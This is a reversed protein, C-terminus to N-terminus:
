SRAEWCRLFWSVCWRPVDDKRVEQAGGGADRPQYGAGEREDGSGGVQGQRQGTDSDRYGGDWGRRRPVEDRRARRAEQRLSGEVTPPDRAVHRREDCRVLIRCLLLRGQSTQNPCLTLTETRPLALPPFSAGLSEKLSEPVDKFGFHTTSDAPPPPHSPAAASASPAPPPSSPNLPNSATRPSSTSAFSRSSRVLQQVTRRSILSTM